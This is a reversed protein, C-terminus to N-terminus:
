AAAFAERGARQRAALLLEAKAYDEPTDVDTWRVGTLSVAALQGKAILRRMGLTVSPPEVRAVERLADFVKPELLFCGTDVADRSRIEKGIATIRGDQVRVKTADEEDVGVPHFDVLLRMCDAPADGSALQRLVPRAFVHDAMQLFFPGTLYPAAALLSVGNPEHYRENHVLTVKLPVETSALHSRLLDAGNGTVVVAETCGADAAQQLARALLTRGAVSVLPKPLGGRAASLRSGNGAALIVTQHILPLNMLKAM